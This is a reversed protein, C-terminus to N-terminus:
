KAHYYKHILNDRIENHDLIKTEEQNPQYTEKTDKLSPFFRYYVGHSHLNKGINKCSDVYVKFSDFDSVYLTYDVINKFSELM